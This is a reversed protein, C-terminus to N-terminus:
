CKNREILRLRVVLLVNSCVSITSCSCPILEFTYFPILPIDFVYRHSPNGMRDGFCGVHLDERDSGARFTEHTLMVKYLFM